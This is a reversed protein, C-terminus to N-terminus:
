ALAKFKDRLTEEVTALSYTNGAVVPVKKSYAIVSLESIEQKLKADLM